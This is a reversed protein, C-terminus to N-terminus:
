RCGFPVGPVHASASRGITVPGGPLDVGTIRVEPLPDAPGDLADRGCGGTMNVTLTAVNATLTPASSSQLPRVAVDMAFLDSESLRGTDGARRTPGPPDGQPPRSTGVREGSGHGCKWGGQTDSNRHAAAGDLVRRHM